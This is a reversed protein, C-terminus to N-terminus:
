PQQHQPLTDSYRTMALDSISPTHTERALSALLEIRDNAYASALQTMFAKEDAGNPDFVPRSVESVLAAVVAGERELELTQGQRAAFIDGIFGPGLDTTSALAERSMLGSSKVDLGATEAASTFADLNGAAMLASVRERAIATRREARWADAAEDRVAAFPKPASARVADVVVAVFAGDNLEILGSQEGPERSFLDSLFSPDSPLTDFAAGDPGLGQRDVGRLVTVPLGSAASAAALDGGAALADEVANAKDFLGADAEALRMAERIQDAVDELPATRAPEIAAVLLVHWGLATRVPQTAAGAGASFAADAVAKPFVQGRVVEGLETVVGGATEALEQFAGADGPPAVAFASAETEDQFLAQILLRREPEAYQAKTDEYRNAVEADSIETARAVAEASIVIARADRREPEAFREANADVFTRLQADTPEPAEVGATEAVVYAVDRQQRQNVFMAEALPLPPPVNAAVAGALQARALDGRLAAVYGEESMGAAFLIRRFADADFRDGTRFQPNAQIAQRIADDSVALGLVAAEQDLAAQGLLQELAASRVANEPLAGADFAQGLAQRLSELQRREARDLATRRIEVDGVNAIVPDVEPTLYDGIGWVAFSLILLGFLIKAVWGAAGRRMAILM